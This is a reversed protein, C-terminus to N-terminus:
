TELERLPRAPDVHKAFWNQVKTMSWRIMIWIKLSVGRQQDLIWKMSKFIDSKSWNKVGPSGKLLVNQTIEPGFWEKVVRILDWLGWKEKNKVELSEFPTFREIFQLLATQRSKSVYDQSWTKNISISTLVLTLDLNHLQRQKVFSVQLKMM